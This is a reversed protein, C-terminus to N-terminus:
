PFLSNASKQNKGRHPPVRKPAPFRPALRNPPLFLFRGPGFLNRSRSLRIFFFPRTPAPQFAPRNPRPFVGSPHGMRCYLPSFRPVVSSWGGFVFTSPTERPPLPSHPPGGWNQCKKRGFHFKLKPAITCERSVGPEEWDIKEATEGKKVGRPGKENPARFFFPLSKPPWVVFPREAVARRGFL